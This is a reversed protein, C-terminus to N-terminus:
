RRQPQAAQTGAAISGPNPTVVRPAIPEAKM